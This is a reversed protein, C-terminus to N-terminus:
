RPPRGQQIRTLAANVALALVVLIASLALAVDFNGRGTEMVTATTLV